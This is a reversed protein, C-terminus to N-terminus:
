KGWALFGVTSVAVLRDLHTQIKAHTNLFLFGLYISIKCKRTHHKPDPYHSQRHVGLFCTECNHIMRKGSILVPYSLASLSFFNVLHRVRKMFLRSYQPSVIELSISFWSLMEKVGFKCYSWGLSLVNQQYCGSKNKHHM